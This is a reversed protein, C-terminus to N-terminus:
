LPHTRVPGPGNAEYGRRNPRHTCLHETSTTPCGSGGLMRAKQTSRKRSSSSGFHWSTSPCSAEGEMVGGGVGMPFPFIDRTVDGGRATDTGTPRAARRLPPAPEGRPASRCGPSGGAPAPGARRGTPARGGESGRGAGTAACCIARPGPPRGGAPSRKVPAPSQHRGPRSPGAHLEPAAKGPQCCRARREWM